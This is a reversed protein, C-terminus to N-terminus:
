RPGRGTEKPSVVHSKMYREGPLTIRTSSPSPRPTTPSSSPTLTGASCPSARRVQRLMFVNRRNLYPVRRLPCHIRARSTTCIPPEKPPSLSLPRCDCLVRLHHNPPLPPPVSVSSQLDHILISIRESTPRDRLLGVNKSQDISDASLHPRHTFITSAGHLRSMGQMEEIGSDIDMPSPSRNSTTARQITLTRTRESLTVRSTSM